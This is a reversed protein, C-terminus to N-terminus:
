YQEKKAEKPKPPQDISNIPRRVGGIFTHRSLLRHREAMLMVDGPEPEIAAIAMGRNLFGRERSDRRGLGAHGAVRLYPGIRWHERRHALAQGCLLGQLPIADIIQRIENEEVVADM